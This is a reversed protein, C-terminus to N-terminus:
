SSFRAIIGIRNLPIKGNKLDNIGSVITKSKAITLDSALSATYTALLILSLMYLGSTLLRGAATIVDFDVGYGVLNGFSYWVSMAFQSFIPRNRLAENNHREVLCILVGAYM